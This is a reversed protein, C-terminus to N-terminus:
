QRSAAGAIKDILMEKAALLALDASPRRYDWLPDSPPPVIAM